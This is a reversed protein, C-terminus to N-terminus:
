RRKFGEVLGAGQEETVGSLRFSLRVSNFVNVDDRVPSAPDIEGEIEVSATLLPVDEAKAIVQLLEVGCSAIGALFLEAPTVAEGPCGNHVPGDAVFHQDRCSWLVRGFTDTSRARVGYRRTEVVTMAASREDFRDGNELWGAM